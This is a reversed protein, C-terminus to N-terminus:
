VYWYPDGAPVFHVPVEPILPQLWEALYSMGPEESNCHGVVMLGKSRGAAVGDRIYECAQWEASEGCIVVDVGDSALARLHNPWGAAGLVTAISSCSLQPDGAVRLSEAELRQRVTGALQALTTEPIHFIREDDPDRYGEWGLLRAFGTCIGDPRHAHWYDHFRWIAIGSQEIFRRKAEFVADGQLRETEDRHNYYTPEHTIVLNAGLEVARKLVQRTAIFTTVVGTVRDNPDGSKFTDVTNERPEGPIEKLIIDIVEQHTM